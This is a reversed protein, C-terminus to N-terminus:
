VGRWLRMAGLTVWPDEPAEPTGDRRADRAGLMQFLAAGVYAADPVLGGPDQGLSPNREVLDTRLAGNRFEQSALVRDLFDLNTPVGLYASESLSRRMRSLASDRDAGHVIIKALMPDFHVTVSSGSRVGSDVRVGPGEPEIVRSLVGAAPLFGNTPDEAYVRVEISHGRPSLDYDGMVDEISAGGALLVQLRVLDLGTTMETVPHEVQLRTNMELFYFSGESDLLFEVTGANQYAAGEALRVAAEMMRQRLVENVAPSPAEEIIKQHRRQISCERENLAVVRGKSDGMVQIEIHRAPRICQELLVNGSGFASKAERRCATLAEEFDEDREVTRMGKGGGGRVAKILLPYGIKRAEDQLLKDDGKDSDFGPVVPVNVALAVEKARSKSGLAEMAAATPGIFVLGAAELASPLAPDESLFGYGPHVAECRSQQAARVIRAPDLYSESGEGGLHVAEDAALVHVAGSDVASHVAVPVIGMDKLSRCIRVAIEGRNAVLVRSFPLDRSM